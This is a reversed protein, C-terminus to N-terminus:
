WQVHKGYTQAIYLKMGNDTRQALNNFFAEVQKLVTMNLRVNGTPTRIWPYSPIASGHAFSHRVKVIENLRERVLTANMSRAPWVCFHICDFGTSLALFDRASEWNPTNFRKTRNESALRAVEHIAHFGPDRPNATETFFDRVLDKLYADWAAVISALAAHGLVQCTERKVPRLRSDNM